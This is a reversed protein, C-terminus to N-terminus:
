SGGRVARVLEPSSKGVIATAGDDFVVTWAASSTSAVTTSSWHFFSRTLGFTADISPSFLGYNVISLLENVNPLRWDCHGAFCPATNLAAIKVSFADAWVYGNDKDHITM